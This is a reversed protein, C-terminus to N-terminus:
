PASGIMFEGVTSETYPDTGALRSFRGSDGAGLACPALGMATAVLYMTAYLAGVNRLTTAYAIGEYKWSVRQFRSAIALLVQPRCTQGSAIYADNLLAETDANPAALRALGHAVADYYYLGADLGVCRDVVPYVELEYSAGGSPYPRRTFPGGPGPVFDVVRASHYLFDGLERVTIPLQGYERVSTRRSLASVLGRDLPLPRSPPTLSTTLAVEREAVCPPPDLQGAFRYSGGINADHRGIRSRAHFLLDHFEWHRLAPTEDVDATGGDSAPSVIAASVLLEIFARMEGPRDSHEILSAADAGSALVGLVSAASSGLLRITAVSLPTAAVLAGDEARLHAFRSMVIRGLPLSALRFGPAMPRLDALCDAGSGAAFTIMQADSLAALQLQVALRAEVGDGAAKELDAIRVPGNRLEPPLDHAPVGERRAVVLASETSVGCAAPVPPGAGAGPRLDLTSSM